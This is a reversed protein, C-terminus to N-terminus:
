KRGHEPAAPINSRPLDKPNRVEVSGLLIEWPEINMIRRLGKQIWPDEALLARVAEESDANFILLVKSDGGLTGGMIVRGEDVFKGMLEAHAQYEEQGGM